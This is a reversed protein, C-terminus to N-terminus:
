GQFAGSVVASEKFGTWSSLLPHVRGALTAVFDVQEDSPLEEYAIVPTGRLEWPLLEFLPRRLDGAVLLASGPHEDLQLELASLLQGMFWGDLAAAGNLERRLKQSVGESLTLCPLLGDSRRYPTLLSGGLAQRMAALKDGRGAALSADQLLSLRVIPVREELLRRLAALWSGGPPRLGLCRCRTRLWSLSLCLPLRAELRNSLHGVLLAEPAMLACGLEEAGARQAATVWRGPLGYIPDLAPEGLLLEAGEGVALWREPVVRGLEPPSGALQLRYHDSPLERDVKVDLSPLPVGYTAQLDRMLSGLRPLFPQGPEAFANWLRESLCLLLDAPEPQVVALPM